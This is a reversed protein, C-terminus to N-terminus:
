QVRVDVKRISASIVVRRDPQMCAIMEDRSLGRCQNPGTLPEHMGRGEVALKAAPVGQKVLYRAVAWARRESLYQNYDETGIRDAHGVIELRDYEADKLRAALEDLVSKVQERLIARDFDFEGEGEVGLTLPLMGGLTQPIVTEKATAKRGPAEVMGVVVERQLSEEDQARSAADEGREAGISSSALAESGAGGQAASGAEASLSGSESPAGGGSQASSQGASAAPAIAGADPAATEPTSGPAQEFGLSHDAANPDDGSGSRAAHEADFDPMGAHQSATGPEQGLASLQADGAPADAGAPPIEDAVAAAEDAHKDYPPMASAASEEGSPGESAASAATGPSASRASTDAARGSASEAASRDPSAPTGLSQGGARYEDAAGAAGVKSQGPGSRLATSSKWSHSSCACLMAAALIVAYRAARGFSTPASPDIM